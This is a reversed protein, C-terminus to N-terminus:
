LWAVNKRYARSESELHDILLDHGTLDRLPLLNGVKQQMSQLTLDESQVIVLRIGRQVCIGLKIYDRERQAASEAASYKETARYHQPGNFEWAVTHPYYRDLQLREETRPNVLFGPTADDEFDDSDVLLSLYERMLGEGYHKARELRRQANALAALGRDLGPFSLEFRIRALRNAREVKIWEARVLDGVARAVTNPSATALGALQAYTFWGSPHHFEPLLLVLGYLVRAQIGLRHNTLVAAPVPVTADPEVAPKAPDWGAALLRAVGTLVTPRSLGSAECLRTTGAPDSVSRLRSVMWILKASATLHPSLLLSVPVSVLETSM